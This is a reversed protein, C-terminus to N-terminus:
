RQSNLAHEDDGARGRGGFHHREPAGREPILRAAVTGGLVEHIRATPPWPEPKLLHILWPPRRRPSGRRRIPAPPAPAPECRPQARRRRGCPARRTREM